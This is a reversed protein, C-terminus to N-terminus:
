TTGMWNLFRDKASPYSEGVAQLRGHGGGGRARRGSRWAGSPTRANQSRRPTTVAVHRVDAGPDSLQEGTAPELHFAM